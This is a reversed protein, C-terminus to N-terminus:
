CHEFWIWSSRNENKSLNMHDPTLLSLIHGRLTWFLIQAINSRINCKTLRKHSNYNTLLEFYYIETLRRTEKQALLLM